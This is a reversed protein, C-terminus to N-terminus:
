TPPYEHPSRVVCSRTSATTDITASQDSAAFRLPTVYRSEEDRVALLGPQGLKLDRYVRSTLANIIAFDPFTLIYFLVNFAPSKSVFFLLFMILEPIKISATLVCYLQSDRLFRESLSRFHRRSPMQWETRGQHRSQTDRRAPALKYTIAICVLADFVTDLLPTPLILYKQKPDLISFCYMTPGLHSAIFLGSGFMLLLSAVILGGFIAFFSKVVRNYPYVACIRTFFIYSVCTRNTAICTNNIISLAACHQVKMTDRATNLLLVMVGTLRLLVFVFTNFSFKTTFVVLHDKRLCSIFDWISASLSGVLLYSALEEYEARLPVKYLGAVMPNLIAPQSYSSEVHNPIFDSPKMLQIFTNPRLNPPNLM